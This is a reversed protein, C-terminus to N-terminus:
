IGRSINVPLGSKRAEPCYKLFREFSFQDLDVIKHAGFSHYDFKDQTSFRSCEKTNAVKADILEMHFAFYGDEGGPWLDSPFQKLCKMSAKWDRLSLGGNGGDIIMGVPRERPWNSGIYDFELFDGLEYDSNPCVISDTQFILIKERGEVTNWFDMSLLLANYQVTSLNEVGLSTLIVKKREILKSVSSDRIYSENATGHFLQIGIDLRQSFQNVVYELSPHKRSEVIVAWVKDNRPRAVPRLKPLDSNQGFATVASRRLAQYLPKLHEGNIETCSVDIAEFHRALRRATTEGSGNPILVDSILDHAKKGPVLSSGVREM